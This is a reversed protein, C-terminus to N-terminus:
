TPDPGKLRCYAVDLLVALLLLLLAAPINPLTLAAGLSVLALSGLFRTYRKLPNM